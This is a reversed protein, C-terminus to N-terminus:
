CTSKWYKTPANACNISHAKNRYYIYVSLNNGFLQVRSYKIKFRCTPMAIKLCMINQICKKKVYAIVRRKGEHNEQKIVWCTPYQFCRCHGVSNNCHVTVIGKSLGSTIRLILADYDSGYISHLYLISAVCYEVYSKSLNHFNCM